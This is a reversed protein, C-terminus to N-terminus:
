TYLKDFANKIMIMVQGNTVGTNTIEVIAEKMIEGAALVIDQGDEGVGGEAERIITAFDYCIKEFENITM